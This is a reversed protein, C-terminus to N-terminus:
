GFFFWRSGFIPALLATAAPTAERQLVAPAFSKACWIKPSRKPILPRIVLKKQPYEYMDIDTDSIQYTYRYRYRYRIDIDTDIDIYIYHYIYIDIDIYLCSQMHVYLLLLLIINLARQFHPLGGLCPWVRYIRLDESIKKCFTHLVFFVIRAYIYIYIYIVKLSHKKQILLSPTLSFRCSMMMNPLLIFEVTEWLNKKFGICQTLHMWGKRHSFVYPIGLGVPLSCM